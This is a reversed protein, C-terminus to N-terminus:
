EKNGQEKKKENNGIEKQDQGINSIMSKIQGIAKKGYIM